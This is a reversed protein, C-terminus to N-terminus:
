SFNAKLNETKPEAIGGERKGRRTDPDKRKAESM